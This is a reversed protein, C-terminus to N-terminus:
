LRCVLHRLSQLESTHEESRHERYHHGRPANNCERPPNPPTEYSRFTTTKSSHGRPGGVPMELETWCEPCIVPSSPGNDGTRARWLVGFIFMTAMELRPRSVMM